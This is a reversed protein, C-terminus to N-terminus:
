ILAFGVCFDCFKSWFRYLPSRLLSQSLKQFCNEWFTLNKLNQLAGLCGKPARPAAKPPEQPARPSLLPAKPLEQAGNQRMQLAGPTCRVAFASEKFIRTKGLSFCPNEIGPCEWISGFDSWFRSRLGDSPAIAHLIRHLASESAGHDSFAAGRLRFPRELPCGLEGLSWLSLDLRLEFAILLM